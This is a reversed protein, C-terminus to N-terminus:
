GPVGSLRVDSIPTFDRGSRGRGPRTVEVIRLEVTTVEVAGIEVMQLERTDTLDQPVVTGDGSGDDLIWEVRRVRRNATYWDDPADIKAYGNVLGVETLVVPEDFRFTLVEGTGDGPMRWCTRPDGDLMNAAGFTVRNGDRDTSPPAAAPASAEVSASLDTVDAPDVPSPDTGSGESGGAPAPEAEAEDGRDAGAAPTDDRRGGEDSDEGGVLLIGGGTALCLVVLVALAWPLWGPARRHRTSRHTPDVPM